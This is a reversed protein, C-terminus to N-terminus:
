SSMLSTKGSLRLGSSRSANSELSFDSDMVTYPETSSSINKVQVTIIVYQMGPAPATNFMNAAQIISWAQSGMTANVVTIQIGDTILPQGRPLPNSRSMGLVAATTPSTTTTISTKPQSATTPQTSTTLLPASTSPSTTSPTYPTLYTGSSCSAAILIIVAIAVMAQKM